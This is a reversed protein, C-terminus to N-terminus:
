RILLLHINLDDAYELIGVRAHSEKAPAGHILVNMQEKM